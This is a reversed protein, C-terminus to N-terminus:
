TECQGPTQSARRRDDREPGHRTCSGSARDVIGPDLPIHVGSVAPQKSVETQLGDYSGYSPLTPGVPGDDPNNWGARPTPRGDSRVIPGAFGPLRLAARIPRRHIRRSTGLAIVDSAPRSRDLAARVVLSLFPVALALYGAWLTWSQLGVTRLALLWTTGIWPLYTTPPPTAAIARVMEVPWLPVIVASGLALAGLTLSFGQVVRWRRQRAAWLLLSVGTGGWAPAEHDPFGTGRWCSLRKGTGSVEVGTRDPVAHPDHDPRDPAYGSLLRLGSGRRAPDSAPGAHRHRESFVRVSVAARRQPLVFRRPGTTAWLCWFRAPWRSGPHITTPCSITSEWDTGPEIGAWNRSSRRRCHQM